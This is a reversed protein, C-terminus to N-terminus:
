LVSRNHRLIYDRSIVFPQDNDIIEKGGKCGGESNCFDVSNQLVKIRCHNIGFAWVRVNEGSVCSAIRLQGVANASKM